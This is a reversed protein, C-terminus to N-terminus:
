GQQTLYRQLLARLEPEDDLVLIKGNSAMRNRGRPNYSRRGSPNRIWWRRRRCFHNRSTVCGWGRFVACSVSVPRDDRPSRAAIGHEDVTSSAVMSDIVAMGRGM